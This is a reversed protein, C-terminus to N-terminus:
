AKVGIRSRYGGYRRSTGPTFPRPPPKAHLCDTVPATSVYLRPQNSSGMYESLRRHMRPTIPLGPSAKSNALSESRANVTARAAYPEELMAQLNAITRDSEALDKETEQIIVERHRRAREEACSIQQDHKQLLIQLAAKMGAAARSEGIEGEDVQMQECRSQVDIASDFDHLHAVMRQVTRMELLTPSAKTYPTMAAETGWFREFEELEEAHVREIEDMVAQCDAEFVEMRNAWGERKRAKEEQAAELRLLVQCKRNQALVEPRNRRSRLRDAAKRQRKAEEYDEAIIARSEECKLYTLVEEQEDLPPFDGNLIRAAPTPFPYDDDSGFDDTESLEPPSQDASDIPTLPPDSLTKERKKGSV